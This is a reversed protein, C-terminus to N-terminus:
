SCSLVLRVSGTDKAKLSAPSERGSSDQEM